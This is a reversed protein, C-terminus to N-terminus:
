MVQFAATQIFAKGKQNEIIKYAATNTPTILAIHHVSLMADQLDNELEMQEIILGLDICAQMSLHRAHSKTLVHDTLMGLIKDIKSTNESTKSYTDFDLVPKTAVGDNLIKITPLEEDHPVEM